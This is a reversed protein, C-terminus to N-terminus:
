FLVYKQEIDLESIESISEGGDDMILVSRDLSQFVGWVRPAPFGKLTSAELMLHYENMIQDYNTTSHDYVKGALGTWGSKFVHGALGRGVYQNLRLDLTFSYIGLSVSDHLIRKANLPDQNRGLWATIHQAQQLRWRTFFYNPWYALLSWLSLPYKSIIASIIPRMHLRYATRPETLPPAHAPARQLVELYFAAQRAITAHTNTEYFPSAQLTTGERHIFMIHTPSWLTAFEVKQLYMQTFLQVWIRIAPDPNDLGKGYTHHSLHM